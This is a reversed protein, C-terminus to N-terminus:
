PCEISEASTARRCPTSSNDTSTEPETLPTLLAHYRYEYYMSRVIRCALNLDRARKRILAPHHAHGIFGGRPKGSIAAVVGSAAIRAFRVPIRLLDSPRLPGEAFFGYKVLWYLRPDILDFFAIRGGPSLHLLSQRLFADIQSYSLYQVVGAATIVEFRREGLKDWVNIDDACILEVNKAAFSELRKVAHSLMNESVDVGALSKFERSYYSLLDASGCGFDLLTEGKGLHFLKEQAELAYFHETSERHLGSTKDSYYKRVKETDSM